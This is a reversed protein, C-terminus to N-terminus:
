NTVPHNSFAKVIKKADALTYEKKGDITLATAILDATSDLVDPAQALEKVTYMSEMATSKSTM